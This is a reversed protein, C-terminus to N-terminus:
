NGGGGGSLRWVPRRGGRGASGVPGAAIGPMLPGGAGYQGAGESVKVKSTQLRSPWDWREAAGRTELDPDVGPSHVPWLVAGPPVVTPRRAPHYRPPRRRALTLTVSWDDPRVQWRPPPRHLQASPSVTLPAAPIVLQVSPPPSPQSSQRTWQGALFPTPMLM